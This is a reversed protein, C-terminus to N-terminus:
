AVLKFHGVLNQLEEAMKALQNAAHASEDAGKATGQVVETIQQINSSIESTTATQQESWTRCRHQSQL